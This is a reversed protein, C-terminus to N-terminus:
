AAARGGRSSEKRQMRRLFGNSPFLVHVQMLWAHSRICICAQQMRGAELSRDITLGHMAGDHHIIASLLLCLPALAAPLLRPWVTYAATTALM